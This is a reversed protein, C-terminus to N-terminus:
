DGYEATGYDSYLTQASGGDPTITVTVQAHLTEKTVNAQMRGGLPAPLRMVTAADCDVTITIVDGADNEGTMVWRVPIAPTARPFTEIADYLATTNSIDVTTQTGGQLFEVECTVNGIDTIMDALERAVPGAGGSGFITVDLSLFRYVNGNHRLCIGGIKTSGLFGALPMVPAFLAVVSTDHLASGGPSVFNNAQMWVYPHPFGGSGWNEDQHGKDNDLEYTHGKWEITGSVFSNMNHAMYYATMMFFSNFHHMLPMSPYELFADEEIIEMANEFPALPNWDTICHTHIKTFTLDWSITEGNPLVKHGQCGRDTARFDSSISLDLGFFTEGRFATHLFRWDDQPDPATPVETWVLGPRHDVSGANSCIVFSEANAGGGPDNVGYLFFFPTATMTAADVHVCKFYWGDVFAPQKRWHFHNNPNTNLVEVEEKESYGSSNSVRVEMTSGKFPGIASAEINMQVTFSIYRWKMEFSTLDSVRYTSLSHPDHIKTSSNLRLVRGGNLMLAPVGVPPDPTETIDVTFPPSASPDARLLVMFSGYPLIANPIIPGVVPFQLKLDM